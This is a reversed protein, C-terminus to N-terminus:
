SMERWCRWKSSGGPWGTCDISRGAQPHEEATRYAEDVMRKIENDIERSTDDSYDPPSEMDMGLYGTPGRDLTVLGIKESMGYEKVMRRAIDTMKMLDNHAGTSAESFILVEAARGGLLTALKGRLETVTMLYRDETPPQLTYGLAAIGRPVISIKEVPDAGPLMSAVIAHGVEHYAVREKEEQKM